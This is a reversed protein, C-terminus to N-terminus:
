LIQSKTANRPEIELSKEFLAKDSLISMNALLKQLHPVRQYNFPTRQYADIKSLITYQLRRKEWNILDGDLWDPNGDEIFTLDGL